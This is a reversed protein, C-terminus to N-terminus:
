RDDEKRVVAERYYTRMRRKEDYMHSDAKSLTAFLDKETADRMAFGIAISFDYDVRQDYESMRKKLIEICGKIQASSVNRCIICFEDGGIRYVVGTGDFAEKALSAAAILYDDGHAHGVTDNVAKLGNLDLMVLGTEHDRKAALMAESFAKRNLVSTLPDFSFELERLYIYYFLMGLTLAPWLVLIYKTLSELAVFGIVMFFIGYLIWKRYGSRQRIARDNAVLFVVGTAFCAVMYVPYLPGRAYSTDGSVSFLHHTLFNALIFVSYAAIGVIAVNKYRLMTSDFLTALLLAVVPAALYILSYLVEDLFDLDSSGFSDVFVSLIELLLIAVLFLTIGFFLRTKEASVVIHERLLAALFVCAVVALLDPAIATLEKM